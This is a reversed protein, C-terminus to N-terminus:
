LEPSSIIGVPNLTQNGSNPTGTLRLLTANGPCAQFNPAYSALSTGAISLTILTTAIM